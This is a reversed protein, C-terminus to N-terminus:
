YIKSLQYVIKLINSWQYRLYYEKRTKTSVQLLDWLHRRANPDMGSTPEDVLVVQVSYYLCFNNLLYLPFMVAIALYLFHMDNLFIKIFFTKHMQHQSLTKQDSPM